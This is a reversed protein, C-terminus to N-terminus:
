STPTGLEAACRQRSYPMTSPRSTACQMWSSRTPTAGSAGSFSIMALNHDSTSDFDPHIVADLVTFSATPTAINNGLLLNGSDGGVCSAATVAHGFSGSVNVITASCLTSSTVWAGVAGFSGALSLYDADVQDARIVIAQSPTAIVLFSLTVLLQWYNRKIM